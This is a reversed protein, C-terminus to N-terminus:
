GALLLVSSIFNCAASIAALVAIIAILQVATRISKLVDLENM